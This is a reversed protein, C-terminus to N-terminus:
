TDETEETAMPGPAGVPAAGDLRDFFAIVDAVVREPHELNPMHGCQDYLRLSASRIREMLAEAYGPERLPDNRGAILLTPAAIKEYPTEDPRGFESRPPVAPSKFRAAAV